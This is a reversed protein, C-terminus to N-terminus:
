RRGGDRGGTLFPSMFAMAKAGKYGWNAHFLNFLSKLSKRTRYDAKSSGGTEASPKLHTYIQAEGMIKHECNKSVLDGWKGAQNLVKELGCTCRTDRSKFMHYILNFRM